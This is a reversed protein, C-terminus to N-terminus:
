ENTTLEVEGYREAVLKEKGLHSAGQRGLGCFMEVELKVFTQLEGELRVRALSM